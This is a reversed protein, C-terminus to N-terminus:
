EEERKVTWYAVRKLQPPINENSYLSICYFCFLFFHTLFTSLLKDISLLPLSSPGLRHHFFVFSCIFSHVLFSWLVIIHYNILIVFKFTGSGSSTTDLRIHIGCQFFPPLHVLVIAVIVVVITEHMYNSWHNCEWKYSM